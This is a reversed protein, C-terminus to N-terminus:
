GSWSWKPTRFRGDMPLQTALQVDSSPGMGYVNILGSWPTSDALGYVM